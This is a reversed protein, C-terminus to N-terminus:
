VSFLKESRILNSEMLSKRMGITLVENNNANSIIISRKTRPFMKEYPELITRCCEIGKQTPKYIAIMRKGTSLQIKHILGNAELGDLIYRHKKLNLGCFNILHTKNLEKYEVLKLIIDKAIYNRDRYSSTSASMDIFYNSTQINFSLYLQRILKNELREKPV